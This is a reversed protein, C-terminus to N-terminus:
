AGPVCLGRGNCDPPCAGHMFYICYRIPPAWPQERPPLKDTSCVSCATTQEPKDNFCDPDPCRTAPANSAM